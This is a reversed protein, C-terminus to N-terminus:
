VPFWAPGWDSDVWRLTFHTADEGREFKFLYEDDSLMHYQFKYLNKFCFKTMEDLWFQTALTHQHPITVKVTTMSDKLFFKTDM